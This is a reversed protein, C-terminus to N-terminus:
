RKWATKGSFKRVFKKAQSKLWDFHKSCNVSGIQESGNVCCDAMLHIWDIGSFYKKIILKFTIKGDAGQEEFVFFDRRVLVRLILLSNPDPPWGWRFAVFAGNYRETLGLWCIRNTAAPGMERRCLAHWMDQGYCWGQYSSWRLVFSKLMEYRQKFPQWICLLM